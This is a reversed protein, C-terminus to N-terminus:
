VFRSWCGSDDDSSIHWGLAELRAIDSKSIPKDPVIGYLIDHDAGGLSEELGKNCYSSLISLGAIIQQISAM